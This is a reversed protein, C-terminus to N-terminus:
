RGWRWVGKWGEGNMGRGRRGKEATEQRLDGWLEYAVCLCMVSVVRVLLLVPINQCRVEYASVPLKEKESIRFM